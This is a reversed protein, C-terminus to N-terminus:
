QGSVQIKIPKGTYGTVLNIEDMFNKTASRIYM